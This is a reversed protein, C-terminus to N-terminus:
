QSAPRAQADMPVVIELPQSNGGGGNGDALQISVRVAVPLNTDTMSTDWYNRWQSGDYCSIELSLVGSLLWQDKPQPPITALLNRTVSRYLDQGSASSNASPRLEYTVRQVDGWPQDARLAGTTTNFEIAVPQSLGLSSVNGAKFNGSFVGNTRPPMANALDRRMISLAQQVPLSAEVAESTSERLRMASFFVANIAVLVIAMVAVALILEILTFGGGTPRSM